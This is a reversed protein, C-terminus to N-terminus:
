PQLRGGDGRRHDGEPQRQHGAPPASFVPTGALEPVRLTGRFRAPQAAAQAALRSVGTPILSKGRGGPVAGVGTPCRGSDCVRGHIRGDDVGHVVVAVRRSIKEDRERWASESVPSGPLVRSPQFAPGTQFDQRRCQHVRHHVRRPACVRASLGFALADCGSTRCLPVCSRDGKGTERGHGGMARTPSAATLRRRRVIASMISSM